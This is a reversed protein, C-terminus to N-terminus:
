NKKEERVMTVTQMREEDNLNSSDFPSFFFSSCIVFSFSLFISARSLLYVHNAVQSPLTPCLIAPIPNITKQRSLSFVYYNQKASQLRASTSFVLVTCFSSRSISIFLFTSPLSLLIISSSLLNPEHFLILHHTTILSIGRLQYITRIELNLQKLSTTAPFYHLTM